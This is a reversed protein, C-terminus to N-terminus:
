RRRSAALRMLLEDASLGSAEASLKPRLATAIRAATAIAAAPPLSTRRDVYRDVLAWEEDTLAVASTLAPGAAAAADGELWKQPDPVEFAIDRVVITGAAYDGLRKNQSSLVASIASMLYFGFVSEIIRIMNRLLSGMFDLPYGGDRVVRIGLLRKGPTQGHWRAEFVIFYGFWIWFLVLIAFAVVLAEFQKGDLRLANALQGARDAAVSFLVFLLVTAVTQILGDVFIALCRSGLGALEYYFAISEPTRVTVTREVVTPENARFM